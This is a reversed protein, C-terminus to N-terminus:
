IATGIKRLEKELKERIDKYMQITEIRSRLHSLGVCLYLVM